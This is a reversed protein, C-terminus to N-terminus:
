TPVRRGSPVIKSSFVPSESPPLPLPSFPPGIVNCVPVNSTILTRSLPRSPILPPPSLIMVTGGSSPYPLSPDPSSTTGPFAVRTKVTLSKPTPPCHLPSLTIYIYAIYLLSLNPPRTGFLFFNACARERRNPTPGYCGVPTDGWCPPLVIMLGERQSHHYAEVETCVCVCVLNLVRM